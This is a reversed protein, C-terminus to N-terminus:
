RTLASGLPVFRWLFWCWPWSGSSHGLFHQLFNQPFDSLHFNWPVWGDPGEYKNKLKVALLKVLNEHHSDSFNGQAEPLSPSVSGKPFVDSCETRILAPRLFFQKVLAQDAPVKDSGLQGPPLSIFVWTWGIRAMRDWPFPISLGSFCLHLECYLPVSESFSQTRSVSSQSM